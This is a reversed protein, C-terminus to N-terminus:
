LIIPQAHETNAVRLMGLRNIKWLLCMSGRRWMSYPEDHPQASVTHGYNELVGAIETALSLRRRFIAPCTNRLPPKALTCLLIAGVM